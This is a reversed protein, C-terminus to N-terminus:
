DRNEDCRSVGGWWSFVLVAIFLFYVLSSAIGRCERLYLKM